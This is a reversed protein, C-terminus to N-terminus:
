EIQHVRDNLCLDCQLHSALHGNGQAAFSHDAACLTWLSVISPSVLPRRAESMAFSIMRLPSTVFDRASSIACVSTESVAVASV